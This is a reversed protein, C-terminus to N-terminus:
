YGLHVRFAYDMHHPFVKRYNSNDNWDFVYIWGSGWRYPTFKEPGPKTSYWRIDFYEPDHAELYLFYKGFRSLREKPNKFTFSLWGDVDKKVDAEAEAITLANVGRFDVNGRLQAPTMNKGYVGRPLDKLVRLKIKLPASSKNRHVFLKVQAGLLEAEHDGVKFSQARPYSTSDDHATWTKEVKEITMCKYWVEPRRNIPATKDADPDSKYFSSSRASQWINPGQEDPSLNCHVNLKEISPPKEAISSYAGIIASRGCAYIGGGFSDALNEHIICDGSVTIVGKWCFIGGGSGETTNRRIQSDKLSVSGGANFIASGGISLDIISETPKRTSNSLFSCNDFSASGMVFAGAGRRAMNGSFNCLTAKLTGNTTVHIGAGETGRLNKFDCNEIAAQGDLRIGQSSGHGDIILNQLTLSAEKSVDFILLEISPRAAMLRPRGDGKTTIIVQNTVTLGSNLRLSGGDGIRSMIVEVTDGPKAAHIASRLSGEGEDLANWVPIRAGNATWAMLALFMGTVLPALGRTCIRQM